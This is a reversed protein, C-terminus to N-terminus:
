DDNLIRPLEAILDEIDLIIRDVKRRLTRNLRIGHVEELKAIAEKLADEIEM